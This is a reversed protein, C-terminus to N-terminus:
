VKTSTMLESGAAQKIDELMKARRQEPTQREKPANQQQGNRRNKGRTQRPVDDEDDSEQELPARTAM